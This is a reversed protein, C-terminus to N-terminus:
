LTDRLRAVQPQLSLYAAQSPGDAPLEEFSVAAHFRPLGSGGHAARVYIAALGLAAAKRQNAEPFEMAEDWAAAYPAIEEGAFQRAMDQFARQEDNLKFTM